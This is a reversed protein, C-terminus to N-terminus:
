SHTLVWDAWPFRWDIWQSADLGQGLLVRRFSPMCFQGHCRGEGLHTISVIADPSQLKGQRLRDIIEGQDINLCPCFSDTENQLPEFQIAMGAHIKTQCAAKKVGDVKLTCMGCSGDKCYLVDGPRAQAIEFLALSIPIQDRVLRKEGNLTIEVRSSLNPDKERFALYLEDLSPAVTGTLHNKARKIGRAEWILHTPVELVILQSSSNTEKKEEMEEEKAEVVRASGLSEGRRNLLIGSDGVAWHKSGRWLLTLKSLSHHEKEEILPIAGAPCAKVCLGCANCAKEDLVPISNLNDKTGGQLNNVLAGTFKIASTPCSTECLNCPIEEFCEISAIPRKLHEREPTKDSARIKKSDPNSIWKGQYSPTFPNERHSFYKKLRNKSSRLVRDIEKKRSGLDDILAKIIKAALFSGRTEEIIWGDVNEQYHNGASQELEFLLSGPPHERFDDSPGFPGASVVRGVELVRIGYSDQIRLQWLLPAKPILQIPKGEILKGGAIEFRRREVEWGSFRKAGWQSHTELCAVQNVGSELLKSGFRLARNGTGLIVTLPEWLIQTEERLREATELPILGQTRWGPFPDPLTSEPTVRVIARAHIRHIRRQIDEIMILGGTGPLPLVGKVKLSEGGFQGVRLGAEACLSSIVRVGPSPWLVTRPGAAIVVDFHGERVAFNM